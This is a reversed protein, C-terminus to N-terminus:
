KVCYGSIIYGGNRRTHNLIVPRLSEGSALESIMVSTKRDIRRPREINPAYLAREQVAFALREKHIRRLKPPKTHLLDRMREERYDDADGRRRVIFTAVLIEPPPSRDIRLM